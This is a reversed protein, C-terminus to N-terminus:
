SAFMSLRTSHISSFFFVLHLQFRQTPIPSGLWLLNLFCSYFSMENCKWCEWFGVATVVKRMILNIESESSYLDMKQPLSALLRSASISSAPLCLVWPRHVGRVETKLMMCIAQWPAGTLTHNDQKSNVLVTELTEEKHCLSLPIYATKKHTHPIAPPFHHSWSETTEKRQM